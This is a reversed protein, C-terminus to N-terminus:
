RFKMYWVNANIDTMNIVLKDSVVRRRLPAPNCGGRLVNSKNSAFRQGCNECVMFDGKQFYGKGSKYCVDCSDIAARIIGDRCKLTFFTVMTGDDAMVKFHHAEGNNIDKIPIKLQGKEPILSEPGSRWLSFAFTNSATFLM